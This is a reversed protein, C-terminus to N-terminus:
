PPDSSYSAAHRDALQHPRYDGTEAETGPREDDLRTAEVGNHRRENKRRHRQQNVQGEQPPTEVLRRQELCADDQSHHGTQEITDAGDEELLHDTGLLQLYALHHQHDDDNLDDDGCGASTQEVVLQERHLFDDADHGGAEGGVQERALSGFGFMSSSSPLVHGSCLLDDEGIEVTHEVLEHVVEALVADGGAGFVLDLDDFSDPPQEVLEDCLAVHDDADGILRVHSAPLYRRLKEGLLVSPELMQIGLDLLDVGADM